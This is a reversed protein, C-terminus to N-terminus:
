LHRRGRISKINTFIYQFKPRLPLHPHATSLTIPPTTALNFGFGLIANFANKLFPNFTHNLSTTSPTNLM